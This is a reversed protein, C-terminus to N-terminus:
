IIRCKYVIKYKSKEYFLIPKYNRGTQRDTQRYQNEWVFPM